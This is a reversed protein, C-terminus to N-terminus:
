SEPTSKYNYRIMVEFYFGQVTLNTSSIGGDGGGGGGGCVCM